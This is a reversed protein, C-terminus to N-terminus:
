CAEEEVEVAVDQSRDNGASQRELENQKLENAFPVRETGEPCSEERPEDQCCPEADPAHDMISM